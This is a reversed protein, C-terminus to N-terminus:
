NSRIIKPADEVKSVYERYYKLVHNRFFVTEAYPPIGKYQKVRNPGANYSALALSMDGKQAKMLEALYKLGHEIALSAQLRDDSGEDLLDRKYEAFLRKRKEGLALSNQMMDRARNAQFLKNEETIQQLALMAMEKFDREKKLLSVADDFSPSEFINKMGLDKGTKPMIQTLGVAGVPSVALADFSSERKMLALFLLPDIKYTKSGLKELATELLPIYEGAKEEVADKWNYPNKRSKFGDDRDLDFKRLVKESGQDMYRYFVENVWEVNEPTLLPASKGKGQCVNYFLGLADRLRYQTQILSEELLRDM